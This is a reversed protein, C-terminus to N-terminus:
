PSCGRCRFGCGDTWGVGATGWIGGPPKVEIRVGDGGGWSSVWLRFSLTPDVATTLDVPPLHLYSGM